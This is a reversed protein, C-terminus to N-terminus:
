TLDIEIEFRNRVGPIDEDELSSTFSWFHGLPCTYNRRGVSREKVGGAEGCTPCKRESFRVGESDLQEYLHLNEFPIVDWGSGVEPIRKTGEQEMCWKVPHIRCAGQKERWVSVWFPKRTKIERIFIGARAWEPRPRVQLPATKNDRKLPSWSESRFKSLKFLRPDDNPNVSPVLTALGLFLDMEQIYYAENNRDDHVLAGAYVWTPVDHVIPTLRFVAEEHSCSRISSDGREDLDLRFNVKDNVGVILCKEDGDFVHVGPKLWRRPDHISPM